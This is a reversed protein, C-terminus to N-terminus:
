SPCKSGKEWICAYEKIRNNTRQLDAVHKRAEDVLHSHLAVDAKALDVATQLMKKQLKNREDQLKKDLDSLGNQVQQLGQQATAIQTKYASIQSQFGAQQRVLDQKAGNAVQISTKVPQCLVKIPSLRDCAQTIKEGPITDALGSIKTALDTVKTELSAEQEVLSARQENLANLRAELAQKQQEYSKAIFDQASDLANQSDTLGKQAADLLAQQQQLGQSALNLAPGVTDAYQGFLAILQDFIPKKVRMTNYLNVVFVCDWGMSHSKDNNAVGGEVTPDLEWLWNAKNKDIVDKESAPCRELIGTRVAPTPGEALLKYFPNWTAKSYITAAATAITLPDSGDSSANQLIGILDPGTPLPNIDSTKLSPNRIMMRILVRVADLHLHWDASDVQSLLLLPPADSVIPFVQGPGPIPRVLAKAFEKSALLGARNGTEWDSFRKPLAVGLARNVAAFDFIDTPRLACVGGYKQNIAVGPSKPPLTYGLDTPCLRPWYQSECTGPVIQQQADLKCLQTTTGNRDIWRLWSNYRAIDRTKLTYLLVGLNMDPSFGNACHDIFVHPFIADDNLPNKKDWCRTQWEWKRHPSRYFRGEGDHAAAINDCARPEGSACLLGIYNTQDGDNCLYDHDLKYNPLDQIKLGTPKTPDVPDGPQRAAPKSQFDGFEGKMGACFEAKARYVKMVDDDISAGVNNIPWVPLLKEFLSEAKAPAGLALLLGLAAFLFTRSQM